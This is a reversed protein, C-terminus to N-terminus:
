FSSSWTGFDIYLPGAPKTYNDEAYYQLKRMRNTFRRQLHDYQREHCYYTTFHPALSILAGAITQASDLTIYHTQMLLTALGYIGLTIFAEQVHYNHYVNVVPTRSYDNPNGNSIWTYGLPRPQPDPEKMKVVQTLLEGDQYLLITDGKFVSNSQTIAEYTHGDAKLTVSNATRTVVAETAAKAQTCPLFFLVAVLFISVFQRRSLKTM